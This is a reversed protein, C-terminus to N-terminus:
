INSNKFVFVEVTVNEKIDIISPPNEYKKLAIEVPNTLDDTRYLSANNVTINLSKVIILLKLLKMMMRSSKTM